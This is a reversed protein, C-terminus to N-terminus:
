ITKTRKWLLLGAGAIIIIGFITFIRTGPGGTNPLAAGPTNGYRLLKIENDTDDIIVTSSQNNAASVIEGSSNIELLQIEYRNNQDNRVVRFIPDSEAQVYGEPFATEILKYYGPAIGIFRFKGPDEEKESATKQGSKGWSKDLGGRYDANKYKELRFAAGPLPDPEAENLKEVDVKLIDLKLQRQNRFEM